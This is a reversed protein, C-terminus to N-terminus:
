KLIMAMSRCVGAFRSGREKVWVLVDTEHCAREVLGKTVVGGYSTNKTQSDVVIWFSGVDYKKAM